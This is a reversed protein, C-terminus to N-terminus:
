QGKQQLCADVIKFARLDHESLLRDWRPDTDDNPKEGFVGVFIQRWEKTRLGTRLGRDKHNRAIRRVVRRVKKMLIRAM